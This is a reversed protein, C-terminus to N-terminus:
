YMRKLAASPYYTGLIAAYTHGAAAMGEADYQCMGVGHGGTTLPLAAPM